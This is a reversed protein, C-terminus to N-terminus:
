EDKSEQVDNIKFFTFIMFAIQRETLMPLNKREQSEEAMQVKVKFEPNMFEM